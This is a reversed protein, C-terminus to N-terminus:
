KKKKKKNYPRRKKGSFSHIQKTSKPIGLMPPKIRTAWLIRNRTYEFNSSGRSNRKYSKPKVNISEILSNNLRSLFEINANITSRKVLVKTFSRAYQVRHKKLFRAFKKFIYTDSALYEEILEDMEVLVQEENKFDKHNFAIFKEKLELISEFRKDLKLFDREISETTTYRGLAPHYRRYVSYNINDHNKLLVWRYRRLLAMEYSEKITKHDNNTDHNKQELKQKNLERYRKYVSNIYNNIDKLLFQTVHFSDIINVANHFFKDSLYLYPSYMDSIVGKVRNREKFPIRYFYEELTETYRDPLIDIIQGTTFDVIMFAYKRKHNINMYVEDVSIYETLPLRDLDVYRTFIDHVETDSMNFRRAVSATTQNLDKMEQLVLMPTINSYHVFKSLFPFSENEYTNCKPCNWKRQKVKLTCPIGDQFIPHNVTRTYIGKSYMRTGCNCFTITPKRSITVIKGDEDNEYSEIEFSDDNLLDLLNAIDFSKNYMFNEEKKHCCLM